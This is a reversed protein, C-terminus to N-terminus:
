LFRRNCLVYLWFVLGMQFGSGDETEQADASHQSPKTCFVRYSATHDFWPFLAFLLNNQRQRGVLSRYSGGMDGGLLQGIGIGIGIGIGTSDLVDPTESDTSCMVCRVQIRTNKSAPLDSLSPHLHNWVLSSFPPLILPHTPLRPSLLVTEPGRAM